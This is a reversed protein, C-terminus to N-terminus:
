QEHSVCKEGFYHQTLAQQLTLLENLATEISQKLKESHQIYSAFQKQQSLGVKIVHIGLLAPKSINKMSGSTGGAIKRIREKTTQQIIIQWVFIPHASQKLEARWLRDPLYTNEPAKWIYAAAGVLEATNMRSIIVDGDKVKHEPLPKYDIPLNKVQTKDFCDYTAAGTKLVKNHCEEEGALSKGASLSEIYYSLPVTEDNSRFMEEFRSKVLLDLEVLQRKRLRILDSVTDLTAAICKQEEIPPLPILENKVITNSVAPYSAGTAQKTLSAVFMPSCLFGFLYRPYLLERNPRLVCFGTSAFQDSNETEVTAVANLNPRVTSVLIDNKIVKQRARSPADNSSIEQVATIRKSVSDVSSIDIYRILRDFQAPNANETELCVDGLRVM